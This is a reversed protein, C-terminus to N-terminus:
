ANEHIEQIADLAQQVECDPDYDPFEYDQGCLTSFLYCQRCYVVTVKGLQHVSLDHNM